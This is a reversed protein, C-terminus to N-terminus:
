KLMEFDAILGLSDLSRRYFYMSLVSSNLLWEPSFNGTKSDWERKFVLNGRNQRRTPPRLRYQIISVKRAIAIVSGNQTPYLTRFFDDVSDIKISDDLPHLNSVLDPAETHSFKVFSSGTYRMLIASRKSFPSAEVDLYNPSYFLILEDKVLKLERRRLEADLPGDGKFTGLAGPTGNYLPWFNDIMIADNGTTNVIFNVKSTGDATLELYRTCGCPPNPVSSCSKGNVYDFLKCATNSQSTPADVIGMSSGIAAIDRQLIRSAIRSDDRTEIGRQQKIIFEQFFNFFQFAGLLLSAMVAIAIVTEVLSIGRSARWKKQASKQGLGLIRDM